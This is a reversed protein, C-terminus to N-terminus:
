EPIVEISSLSIAQKTGTLRVTLIGNLVTCHNITLATTGRKGSTYKSPDFAKEITQGQVTIAVPREGPAKGDEFFGLKVSYKRSPVDFRYVISMGAREDQFVTQLDDDRHRPKADTAYYGWYKGSAYPQDALWSTSKADAVENGGCNVRIPTKPPGAPAKAAVPPKSTGKEGPKSGTALATEAALDSTVRSMLTAVKTHPLDDATHVKLYQEGFTSARRLMAVKTEGAASDALAKYWETLTLLAAEPLAEPNMGAVLICKRTVEDAGLEAYKAAEEPNDLEVLYLRMLKESIPKSQPDAKLQAKLSEVQALIAAVAEVKKMRATLVPQRDAPALRLMAQAQRCNEAAKAGAGADIQLEAVAVFQDILPPGYRQREEDNKAAKFQAQMATLLKEQWESDREPLSQILLRVAEIATTCGLPSTIAFDYAKERVIAKIAPDTITKEADTLLRAAFEATVKPDKAALVRATDKGYLYEFAEGPDAALAQAPLIVVGAFLVLLAMARVRM